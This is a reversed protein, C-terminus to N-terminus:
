AVAITAFSTKCPHGESVHLRGAALEMVVCCKTEGALDGGHEDAHACISTPAAFHDSLVESAQTVGFPGRHGALLHQARWLRVVSGPHRVRSAPRPLMRPGVYHNTHVLFPGSPALVDHDDALAEISCAAGEGSAVLYHHPADKVTGTLAEMARAFGGATLAKRLAVFIPVARRAAAPGHLGNVAVGIGDGNVGIKALTGAETLTVLPPSGPATVRLVIARLRRLNDWNQALLAPGADAGISALATCDDPSRTLTLSSRANLLVVDRLDARAGAAIARLEEALGADFARIWPVFRAAHRRAAPWAIGFRERLVQRYTEINEHILDAAEAGHREGRDHPAGECHIVPPFPM